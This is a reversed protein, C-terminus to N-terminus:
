FREPTTQCLRQMTLNQLRIGHLHTYSVAKKSATMKEIDKIFEDHHKDIIRFEKCFGDNISWNNIYPLFENLKKRAIKVDDEKATAIGQRKYVDAKKVLLFM